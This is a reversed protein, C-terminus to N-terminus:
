TGVHIGRAIFSTASAAEDRLGIAVRSDGRRMLLSVTYVYFKAKAKAVDANPISIPVRAQQVDSTNGDADIAAFFLRLSAEQTKQRPIL